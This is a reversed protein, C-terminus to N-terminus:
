FHTMARFSAGVTLQITNYPHLIVCPNWQLSVEQVFSSILSGLFIFDLTTLCSLCYLLPFVFSNSSM